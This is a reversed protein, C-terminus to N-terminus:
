SFEYIKHQPAAAGLNRVMLIRCGPWNSSSISGTFINDADCAEGPYDLSDACVM